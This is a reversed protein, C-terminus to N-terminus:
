SSAILFESPMGNDDTPANFSVLKSLSLLDMRTLEKRQVLEAAINKLMDINDKLLARVATEAEQLHAEIRQQTKLPLKRFDM